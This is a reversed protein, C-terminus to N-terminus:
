NGRLDVGVIISEQRLACVCVDVVKILFTEGNKIETLASKNLSERMKFM